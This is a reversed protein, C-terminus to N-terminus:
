WWCIPVTVKISIVKSLRKIGVNKITLKVGPM